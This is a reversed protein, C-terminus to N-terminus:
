LAAQMRPMCRHADGAKDSPAATCSVLPLPPIPKDKNGEAKKRLLFLMTEDVAYNLKLALKKAWLIKVEEPTCNRRVITGFFDLFLYEVNHEKCYDLINHTM